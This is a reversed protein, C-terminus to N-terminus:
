TPRGSAPRICLETATGTRTQAAPTPATAACGPCSVPQNRADRSRRCRRCRRSSASRGTSRPTSSNTSRRPPPRLSTPETGSQLQDDRDLWDLINFLGSQVMPEFLDYFFLIQPALFGVWPVYGVAYAALEFGYRVYPEIVLYREQDRHRDLGRVAAPVAAANTLNAAVASRRRPLVCAALGGTPVCRCPAPVAHGVAAGTGGLLGPRRRQRDAPAGAVGRRACEGCAAADTRRQSRGHCLHQRKRDSAQVFQEHFAAVQASLRQFGQAHQPFCRPSRRRCRTPPRPCCGPRRPRHQRTPRASRPALVPWIRPRM